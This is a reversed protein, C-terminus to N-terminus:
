PRCAMADMLRYERLAPFGWAARHDIVVLRAEVTMEDRVEQGPLLWVGAILGDPALCDYATYKGDQEEASDLSIRFRARKGELQAAQHATLASLTFTREVEASGRPFDGAILFLALLSTM